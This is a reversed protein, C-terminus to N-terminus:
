NRNFILVNDLVEQSDDVNLKNNWFNKEDETVHILTNHIHECLDDREKEGVFALDSLYGNGSGIKIGPVEVIQGDKEVNEYDTYVIIM